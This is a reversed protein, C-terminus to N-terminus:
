RMRRGSVVFAFPGGAPTIGPNLCGITFQLTVPTTNLIRAVSSTINIGYMEVAPAYEWASLAGTMEPPIPDIFFSGGDMNFMISYFVTVDWDGPQLTLPTVVRTM